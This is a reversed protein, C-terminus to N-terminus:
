RHGNMEKIVDGNHLRLQAFIQPLDSITMKEMVQYYAADAWISLPTRRTPKGPLLCSWLAHAIGDGTFNQAGREEEMATPIRRIAQRCLHAELTRAVEKWCTPLLRAADNMSPRLIPVGDNYFADAIGHTVAFPFLDSSGTASPFHVTIEVGIVGTTMRTAVVPQRAPIAPSAGKRRTAATPNCSRKRSGRPGEDFKRGM